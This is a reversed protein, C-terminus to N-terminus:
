WSMNKALREARKMLNKGKRTDRPNKLYENFRVADEGELELGLEIPRAMFKEEIIKSNVIYGYYYPYYAYLFTDSIQM